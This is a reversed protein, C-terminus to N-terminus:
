RICQMSKTQRYFSMTDTPFARIPLTLMGNIEKDSLVRRLAVCADLGAISAAAVLNSGILYMQWCHWYTTNSADSVPSGGLM